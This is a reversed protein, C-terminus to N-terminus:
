GLTSLRQQTRQAEETRNQSHYLDLAQQWSHRADAHQGLAQQVGGVKFLADAVQATNHAERCLRLAHQYHNLAEAYQGTHRAVHGLSDLAAAEGTRYGVERFLALAQACHSRAQEHHGLLAHNWGVANLANAEWVPNDLTQYLCLAHQAHVLAQQHDGQQARVRATTRHAHAQGAVDRVEEFLARAQDLHDLAVTYEGMDSRTRSLLWHATAQAAPDGLRDAATLGTRWTTLGDRIHGRHRQFLDLTWALQWVQRNLGQELALAQTALLALHETDFWALAGARELPLPTCGATPADLEIPTRHPFLLRDAAHATHLYFDVLRCLAATRVDAPQTRGHETSYLRVLDHMRYRGPTHQRLLHAEELERLLLRARPLPLATLAAAAPLSIDPGPALGLLAFVQATEDELARHSTDFVARLDTTLDGGTLADLRNTADDLEEALMRLPFDPRTTARAAVIGLALPLGACRRLLADVADPEAAVRDPGLARAFIQRAEDDPLTDLDLYHSGHTAALPGLRSRSTILVMCTASGPLLPRVQDADHANDLVILMRQDAVLSRYLGAQAEPDAPIEQPDTGLADLFGRVVTPVPLPDAIPDFGRLNVYLQGDPFRDLHEHAWRLALWTKGIGGAGGIASIVLVQNARTSEKLLNDLAALEHDRGIFSGPSPPLQRPVPRSRRPAAVVAAEASSADLAPDATLIRHHLQRLPAGPDVGMEEALGRRAREYCELAEAQRGCRYLALMLQWVVREDLPHQEARASLEALVLAHQRLGLRLEALDLRAALEEAELVARQATFWPSDAGAFAEGRWLGLAEQWLAVAREGAETARAQGVLARFRHLDVAGAELALRYGGQERAIDAGAATLAQRLRSVYGYLTERGRRPVREGWVREVLVHGPVVRDADVLLAALVQRQRAHGVDVPTEGRWAEVAGLVGFRLLVAWGRDHCTM